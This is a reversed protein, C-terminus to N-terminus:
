RPQWPLEGPPADARQESDAGPAAGQQEPAGAEPVFETVKCSCGAVYEKRYRFASKLQTYQENSRAAVMQDVAGGPNQYYYLEAPAACKSQCAEADRQFHNPLTSFSIPFYYGDCLRVCVTRYTAFPLNGYNGLGGNASSDEEEWLSSFPNTVEGRRAQQEYTSGCNNRALERVIDDQYSRGASATLQQRQAELDALRRHNSEVESSLDVCRRTRRLTKSFLFYDYCNMRELQHEGSRTAEDVQRLENEIAPILDRSESGKKNEQVLREELQVCISTRNGWGGAAAGPPASTPPGYGTPPGYTDSPRYVPERPIPPAREQQQGGWPWWGQALAPASALLLAGAVLLTRGRRGGSQVTRTSSRQGTDSM